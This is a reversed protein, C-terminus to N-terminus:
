KGDDSYFERFILYSGGLIFLVPTLLDWSFRFFAVIFLSGFLLTSLLFDQTRKTLIQRTALSGWIALLIGPWWWNTYFLLGLIVLFVGNGIADAKGRGM